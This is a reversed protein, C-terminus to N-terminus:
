ACPYPFGPAEPLIEMEGWYPQARKFKLTETDEHAKKKEEKKFKIKTTIAIHNGRQCQAQLLDKQGPLHGNTPLSAQIFIETLTKDCSLLKIYHLM